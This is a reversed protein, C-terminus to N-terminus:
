FGVIIGGREAYYSCLGRTPMIKVIKDPYKVAVAKKLAAAFEENRCHSIVVCEKDAVRDKFDNLIVQLTKKGGKAIKKMKITGEDSAIGIGWLGLHGLVIGAIKPMRGNNVLNHYSSLAFILKHDLMYAHIRAKVQDFSLGQCILEALKDITAPEIGTGETVEEVSDFGEIAKSIENAVGEPQKVILSLMSALRAAGVEARLLDKTDETLIQNSLICPEGRFQTHKRHYAVRRCTGAPLYMADQQEVSMRNRQMTVFYGHVKGSGDVIVGEVQRCDDPLDHDRKWGTWDSINVNCIQDADFVRIKGGTLLPDCWVICDGHIKVLRLILALMDQLNEGEAYGCHRKWTNYYAQAFERDAGTFLPTGGRKGITLRIATDVTSSVSTNDMLADAQAYALLRQTARFMQETESLEQRIEPQKRTPDPRLSDYRAVLARSALLSVVQKVAQAQAKRTPKRGM